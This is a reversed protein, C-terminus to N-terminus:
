APEAPTILGYHGDYRHYLVNGRGTEPDVFFVFPRGGVDLRQEAEALSLRPAPQGSLTIPVSAPVVDDAGDARDADDVGDAGDAQALRYGNSESRYVVSDQGTTSDTFLHFDYDMAEM